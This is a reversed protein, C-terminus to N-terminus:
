GGNRAERALRFRAEEIEEDSGPEVLVLSGDIQVKAGSGVEMGGRVVVRGGRGVIVSAGNKIFLKAGGRVSPADFLSRCYRCRLLGDGEPVLDTAGCQTCQFSRPRKRGM